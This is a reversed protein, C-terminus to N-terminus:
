QHLDLRGFHRHVIEFLRPLERDSVLCYFLGDLKWLVFSTGGREGSLFSAGPFPSSAVNGSAGFVGSRPVVLLLYAEQGSFFRVAAARQKGARESTTGAYTFGDGRPVVVRRGVIVSARNAAEDVGVAPPATSPPQERWAAYLRGADRTLRDAQHVNTEKAFRWGFLVVVATLLLLVTALRSRKV